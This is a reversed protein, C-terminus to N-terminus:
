ADISRRLGREGKAFGPAWPAAAEVFRPQVGDRHLGSSRVRATTENVGDPFGM